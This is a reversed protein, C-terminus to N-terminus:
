QRERRECSERERGEVWEGGEDRWGCGERKGGEDVARYYRGKMWIGRAEEGRM